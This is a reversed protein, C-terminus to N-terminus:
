AGVQIPRLTAADVFVITPANEIASRIEQAREAGIAPTAGPQQQDAATLLEQSTIDTYNM